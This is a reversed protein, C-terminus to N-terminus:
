IRDSLLLLNETIPKYSVHSESEIFLISVSVNFHKKALSFTNKWDLWKRFSVFLTRVQSFGKLELSIPVCWSPGCIIISVLKTEKWSLVLEEFTRETPISQCTTSHTTFLSLTYHLQKITHVNRPFAEKNKYFNAHGL